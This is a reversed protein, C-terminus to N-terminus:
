DLKSELKGTINLKIMALKQKSNTILKNLENFYENFQVKANKQRENVNIRRTWLLSTEYKCSNARVQTV